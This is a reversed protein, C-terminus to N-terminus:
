LFAGDAQLVVTVGNLEGAEVDFFESLQLRRCPNVLAQLPKVKVLM